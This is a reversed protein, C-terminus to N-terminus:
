NGTLGLQVAQQYSHYATFLDLQAATVDRQASDLTAKAELLANQSLNGQQHKLEAAAYNHQEYRLAAEKVELATQAPAIARYLNQFSLEFSAAAAQEQIVAAEHAHQAMKYQYSNKGEDSRADNMEKEKTEVSRAAAYLTYSNKKALVLDSSYSIATIQDPSVSPQDTLTLVGNTSDGLLSQLSSKMTFISNDLSELSSELTTLGNQVQTLTLQSIQGRDYRLEMEEVTRKTGELTDALSERQLQATLISLYLSEAGSVTQDIANEIQRSTDELTKVYDKKQQKLDDLQDEMSELNAKLSEAQAKGYAAMTQATSVGAIAASIEKINKSIDASLDIGAIAKDLAAQAAAVSSASSSTLMAAALELEDMADEMDRIAANWDMAKASELGEKASKINLNNAEVRAGIQSFSLSGSSSPKVATSANSTPKAGSTSTYRLAYAPSAMSLALACSLCLSLAQKKM